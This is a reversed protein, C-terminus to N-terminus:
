PKQDINQCNNRIKKFENKNYEIFFRRKAEKEEAFDKKRQFFSSLLM